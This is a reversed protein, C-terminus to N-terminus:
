NWLKSDGEDSSHEVCDEGNFYVGLENKILNSILNMVEHPCPAYFGTLVAVLDSYSSGTDIMNQIAECYEKTIQESDKEIDKSM